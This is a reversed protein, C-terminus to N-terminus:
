KGKKALYIMDCIERVAGKGGCLKTKYKGLPLVDKQADAVVIPMGVAKLCEIDNIDNGVYAVEGLTIGRKKIEN